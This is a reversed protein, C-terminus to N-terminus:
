LVGVVAAPGHDQAYTRRLSVPLPTSATDVTVGWPASPTRDQRQTRDNSHSRALAEQSAVKVAQWFEEAIHGARDIDGPSARWLEGRPYMAEGMATVREQHPSAEHKLFEVGARVFAEEGIQDTVYFRDALANLLPDEEVWDAHSGYGLDLLGDVVSRPLRDALQRALSTHKLSNEGPVVVSFFFHLNEHVQTDIAQESVAGQAAAESPTLVTAITLSANRYGGAVLVGSAPAQAEEAGLLKLTDGSGAVRMTLGHELGANVYEGVFQPLPTRAFAIGARRASPSTDTAIFENDPTPYEPSLSLPAMGPPPPAHAFDAATLDLLDQESSPPGALSPLRPAETEQLAAPLLAVALMVGTRKMRLWTTLSM